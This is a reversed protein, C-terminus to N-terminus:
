WAGRHNQVQKREVGGHEQFLGPHRFARPQRDVARGDGSGAAVRWLGARAARRRFWGMMLCRPEALHDLIGEVDGAASAVTRGPQRTSRGWGPRSFTVLRLGHEHATRQLVSIQVCSGPTRHHLVLPTGNEPGTVLVDLQRGDPLDIM